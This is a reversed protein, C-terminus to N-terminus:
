SLRKSSEVLFSVDGKGVINHPLHCDNCKAVHHHTSKIWSDMNERMVHCNICAQPDDSMYSYGKAYFFAYVGLGVIIGFVFFLATGYRFFSGVKTKM